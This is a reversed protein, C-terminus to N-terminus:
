TCRFAPLDLSGEPLKKQMKKKDPGARGIWFPGFCSLPFQEANPTEPTPPSGAERELRAEQHLTAVQRDSRTAHQM